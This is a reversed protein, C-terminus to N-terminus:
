PDRSAPGDRSPVPDPPDFSCRRYLYSADFFDERLLLHKHSFHQAQTQLPLRIGPARAVSMLPGDEEQWTSSLCSARSCLPAAEVSRSVLRGSRSDPTASAPPSVAMPAPPASSMQDLLIRSELERATAEDAPTDGQQSWAVAGSSALAVACFLMRTRRGSRGPLRRTPVSSANTLM